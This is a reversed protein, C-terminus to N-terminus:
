KARRDSRRAPVTRAADLLAWDAIVKAEEVSLVRNFIRFDAIAGGSFYRSKYSGEEDGAVYGRGLSIPRDNGIEGKLATFYEGGQVPLEAGNVYLNM